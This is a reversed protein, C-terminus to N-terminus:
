SNHLIAHVTELRAELAANDITGGDNLIHKVLFGNKSIYSSIMSFRHCKLPDAETCMIAIKHDKLALNKLKEIGSLFRETKQYKMFDLRGTHDFLSSDKQRAGLEKGLFLYSIGHPPLRVEMESKNFHPVYRSYPDSRVDGVLDISFSKLLNVFCQFNLNSHGITYILLLEAMAIM